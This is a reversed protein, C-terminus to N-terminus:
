GNKRGYSGGLASGGYLARHATYSYYQFPPCYARAPLKALAGAKGSWLSGGTGMSVPGGYHVKDKPRILLPNLM